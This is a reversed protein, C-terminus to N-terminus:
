KSEGKMQLFSYVPILKKYEGLFIDTLLKSGEENLHHEDFYLDPSELSKFTRLDILPYASFYQQYISDIYGEGYLKALHTKRGPQDPHIVFLVPAQQREIHAKLLEANEVFLNKHGAELGRGSDLAAQEGEALSSGSLQMFGKSYRYVDSNINKRTTLQVQSMLFGFRKSIEHERGFSVEHLNIINLQEANLFDDGYILDSDIINGGWISFNYIKEGFFESFAAENFNVYNKSDGYVAVPIKASKKFLKVVHYHSPHMGSNFFPISQLALYIVSVASLFLLTHQLFRKM